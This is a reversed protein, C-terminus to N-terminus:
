SLLLPLVKAISPNFKMAVIRNGESCVKHLIKITHNEFLKRDTNSGLFHRGRRHRKKVYLVFSNLCIKADWIKWMRFRQLLQFLNYGLDPKLSTPYQLNDSNVLVSKHLILTSYHDRLVILEWSDISLM